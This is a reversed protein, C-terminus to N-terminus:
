ALSKLSSLLNLLPVFILLSIAREALLSTSFWCVFLNANILCLTLNDPLYSPWGYVALPEVILLWQPKSDLYPSKLEVALQCVSEVVSMCDDVPLYVLLSVAVSLSTWSRLELLNLMKCDLLNLMLQCPPEVNLLCYFGVVLICSPRWSDLQMYFLQNIRSIQLSVARRCFLIRLCSSSCLNPFLHANFPCNWLVLLVSVWFSSTLLLILEACPLLRFFGLLLSVWFLHPAFTQSVTLM